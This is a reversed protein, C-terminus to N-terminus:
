AVHLGWLFGGGQSQVIGAKTPAITGPETGHSSFVTLASLALPLHIRVANSVGLVGVLYRRDWFGAIRAIGAWGPGAEGGGETPQRTDGAGATPGRPCRAAVCAGGGGLWLGSAGAGRAVAVCCGVCVVGLGGLAGEEDACPLCLCSRALSGNREERERTRGCCCASSPQLRQGGSRAHPGAAVAAHASVARGARWRGTACRPARPAGWVLCLGEALISAGSAAGSRAAPVEGGPLPWWWWWWWCCWWLWLPAACGARPPPLGAGSSGFRCSLTPLGSGPGPPAILSIRPCIPPSQAHFGLLTQQDNSPGRGCWLPRRGRERGGGSVPHRWWGRSHAGGGQARTRAGGGEGRRACVRLGYVMVLCRSRHVSSSCALNRCASLSNPRAHRLISPAHHEHPRAGPGPQQLGRKRSPERSKSPLPQTATPPLSNGEM